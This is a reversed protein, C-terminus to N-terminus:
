TDAGVPELSEDRHSQEGPFVRSGALPRAVAQGFGRDLEYDHERLKAAPVEGGAWWGGAALQANAGLQEFLASGREPLLEHVFQAVRM